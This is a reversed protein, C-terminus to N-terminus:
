FPLNDLLVLFFQLSFNGYMIIENDFRTAMIRSSLINWRWVLDSLVSDAFENM